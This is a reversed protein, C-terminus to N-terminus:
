FVFFCLPRRTHRSWGARLSPTRPLIPHEQGVRHHQLSASCGAWLHQRYGDCNSRRCIDADTGPQVPGRVPQQPVAWGPPAPLHARFGAARQLLRHWHSWARCRRGRRGPLKSQYRLSVTPDSGAPSSCFLSFLFLQILILHLWQFIYISQCQM